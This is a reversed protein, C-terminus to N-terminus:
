EYRTQIGWGIVYRKGHEPIHYSPLAEDLEKIFPKVNLSFDDNENHSFDRAIYNGKQKIVPKYVETDAIYNRAWVLKSEQLKKIFAEGNIKSTFGTSIKNICVKGERTHEQTWVYENWFHTTEIQSKNCAVKYPKKEEVTLEKIM